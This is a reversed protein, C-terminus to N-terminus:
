IFHCPAQPNLSLAGSSLSLPGTSKTVPAEFFTVPGRHIFHCAGSDKESAGTSFSKPRYMLRTVPYLSLPGETSPSLVFLVSQCHSVAFCLPHLSSFASAAGRCCLYCLSVIFFSFSKTTQVGRWLLYFPLHASAGGPSM